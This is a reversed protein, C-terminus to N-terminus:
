PVFRSIVSRDLGATEYEVTVGLGLFCGNMSLEVEEGDKIYLPPMGAELPNLCLCYHGDSFAATSVAALCYNEPFRVYEGDLYMYQVYINAGYYGVAGLHEGDPYCALVTFSDDFTELEEGDKRLVNRSDLTYLVPTGDEMEVCVVDGYSAPLKLESQTSGRVFYHRGSATKYVFVPDGGDMMLGSVVEGVDSVAIVEEGCRLTWGSEDEPIGLIYIEADGAEVVSHLTESEPYSFQKAGDKMIVTESAAAYGTFVHAGVCRVMWIDTSVQYEDGAPFSLEEMRNQLLRIECEVFGREPDRLWDYGDPYEAVAIHFVPTKIIEPEQPEEEGPGDDPNEQEQGPKEEQVYCVCECPEKKCAICALTVLMAMVLQIFHRM